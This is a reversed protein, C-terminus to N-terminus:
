YRFKSVHWGGGKKIKYYGRTKKLKFSYEYRKYFDSIYEYFICLKEVKYLNYM